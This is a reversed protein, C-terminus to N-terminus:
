SARRRFLGLGVLGIGLLAMTGPEPIGVRGDHVAWAYYEIDKTPADWCACNMSMRWARSTDAANELGTWYWELYPEWSGSQLPLNIFPSIDTSEDIYTGGSLTYWLSGFENTSTPVPPRANDPDFSPLRWGTVGGLDLTSAWTMAADWSMRGDSDYHSSMAYNADQLWTIDLDSDYVMGGGLEIFTAFASSVYGLSIAFCFASLGKKM